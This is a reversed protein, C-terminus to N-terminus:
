PSSQLLAARTAADLRLRGCVAKGQMGEADASDCLIQQARQRLSLLDAMPFRAELIGMIWSLSSTFLPAAMSTGSMLGLGGGRLSSLIADGPATWQVSSKGYNSFSALRGGEAHAAISIVGPYMKPVEPYQDTNLGDNGASSVVLRGRSAVFAFVDRLAQTDPGGGWSCNILEAGSEVAYTLARALDISNSKGYRDLGRIVTLRLNPAPTLVENELAGMLLGAVHTGHGFGDEPIPDEDVFDYGWVDDVYGNDDDDLRNGPVEGSRVSRLSQLWPHHPDIGSDILAVRLSRPQIGAAQVLERASQIGLDRFWWPSSLSLFRSDLGALFDRTLQPATLAQWSQSAEWAVWDPPIDTPLRDKWIRLELPSLRRSTEGRRQPLPVEILGANSRSRTWVFWAESSRPQWQARSRLGKSSPLLGQDGDDNGLYVFLGSLSQHAFAVGFRREGHPISLPLNLRQFKSGQGLYHGWSGSVAWSDDEALSVGCAQHSECPQVPLREAPLWREGDLTALQVRDEDARLVARQNSAFRTLEEFRGFSHPVMPGWSWVDGDARRAAVARGQSDFIWFSEGVALLRQEEAALPLNLAERGDIVLRKGDEDLWAYHGAGLMACQLPRRRGERPNVRPARWSGGPFEPSRQPFFLAAERNSCAIAYPLDSDASWNRANALGGSFLPFIRENAALTLSASREKEYPGRGIFLGKKDGIRLSDGQSNMLAFPFSGPSNVPGARLSPTLPFALLCFLLRDVVTWLLGSANQM